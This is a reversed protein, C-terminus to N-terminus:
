DVYSTRAKDISRQRRSAFSIFSFLHISCANKEEFDKAIHNSLKKFCHAFRNKANEHASDDHRQRQEITRAVRIL